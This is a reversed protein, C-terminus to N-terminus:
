RPSMQEVVSLVRDTAGGTLLKAEEISLPTTCSRRFMLTDTATLDTFKEM